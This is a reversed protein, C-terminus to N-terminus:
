SSWTLWWLCPGPPWPQVLQVLEEVDIAEVSNWLDSILEMYGFFRVTHFGMGNPVLWFHDM